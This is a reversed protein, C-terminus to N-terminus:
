RRTTLSMYKSSGVSLACIPPDVNIRVTSLKFASAANANPTTGPLKIASQWCIRVFSYIHVFFSGYQKNTSSQVRRAARSQRRTKFRSRRPAFGYTTTGGFNYAGYGLRDLVHAPVKGSTVFALLRASALTDPSGVAAISGIEM